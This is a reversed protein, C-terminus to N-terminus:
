MFNVGLNLKVLVKYIELAPLILMNHLGTKAKIENLIDNIREDSPALLTFWMNYDHSRLYNHTIGPYSNVVEAVQEIEAEPVQLACLTGKYGVRRSDFLGGLRRIVGSHSLETIRELVEEESIGLQQGLDQFPRETIPFDSQILNLLQKDMQDITM